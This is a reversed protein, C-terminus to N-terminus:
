TQSTFLIPYAKVVFFMSQKSKNLCSTFITEQIAKSKKRLTYFFPSDEIVNLGIYQVAVDNYTLEFELRAM